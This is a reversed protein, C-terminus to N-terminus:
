LFVLVFSTYINWERVNASNVQNLLGEFLYCDKDLVYYLGDHWFSASKDGM